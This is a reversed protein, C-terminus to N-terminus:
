REIGKSKKRDNSQEQQTREYKARLPTTGGGFNALEHLFYVEWDEPIVGMETQKYGAPITQKAVLEGAKAQMMKEAM